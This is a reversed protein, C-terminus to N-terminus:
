QFGKLAKRSVQSKKPAPLSYALCCAPPKGISSQYRFTSAEVEGSPLSVTVGNVSRWPLGISQAVPMAHAIGRPALFGSSAHVQALVIVCADEHTAAAFTRAAAAFFFLDGNVPRYVALLAASWCIM